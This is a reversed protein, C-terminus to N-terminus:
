THRSHSRSNVLGWVQDVGNRHLAVCSLYTSIAKRPTEPPSSKVNAGLPLLESSRSDPRIARPTNHSCFIECLVNRHYNPNTQLLLSPVSGWACDPQFAIVRSAQMLLEKGWNPLISICFRNSNARWPPRPVTPPHDDYNGRWKGCAYVRLSWKKVTPRRIQKLM